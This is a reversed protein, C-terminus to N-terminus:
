ASLFTSPHSCCFTRKYQLFRIPASLLLSLHPRHNPVSKANQIHLHSIFFRKNLPYQLPLFNEARKRVTLCAMNTSFFIIRQQAVGYPTSYSLIATKEVLILGRVPDLLYCESPISNKKHM